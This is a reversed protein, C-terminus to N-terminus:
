LEVAGDLPEDHEIAVGRAADRARALLSAPFVSVRDPRKALDRALFALFENLVPDDDELGIDISARKV